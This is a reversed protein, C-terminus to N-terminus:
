AIAEFVRLFAARRAAKETDTMPQMKGVGWVPAAGAPDHSPHRAIVHVHLQTVVNGLQAVNMKEAGFEAKMAAAVRCCLANFEAERPPALDFLESAGADEPVLILWPYRADNMMRAQVNRVTAILDSDAELRPDLVFATM